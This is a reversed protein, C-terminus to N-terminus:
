ITKKRRKGSVCVPVRLCVHARLCRAGSFTKSAGVKRLACVLLSHPINRLSRVIMRKGRPSLLRPAQLSVDSRSLLVKLTVGKWRRKIADSNKLVKQQRHDAHTVKLRPCINPIKPANQCWAPCRARRADSASTLLHSDHPPLLPAIFLAHPDGFPFGHKYRPGNRSSRM